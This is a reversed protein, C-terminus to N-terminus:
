CWTHVVLLRVLRGPASWGLTRAESLAGSPVTRRSWRSIAPFGARPSATSAAPALLRDERVVFHDIVLVDLTELQTEILAPLYKGPALRMTRCALLPFQRGGDLPGSVKREQLVDRAIAAALARVVTL